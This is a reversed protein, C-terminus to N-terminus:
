EKDDPLNKTIGLIGEIEEWEELQSNWSDKHAIKIAKNIISPKIELEEAVAKVTDKLGENLDEVERLVNSGEKILRELKAKEEPGYMKSM